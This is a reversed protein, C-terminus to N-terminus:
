FLDLTQRGPAPEFWDACIWPGGSKPVKPYVEFLIGSQSVGTSRAIIRHHTVRGSFDTTVDDNVQLLRSATSV